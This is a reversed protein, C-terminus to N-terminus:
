EFVRISRDFDDVKCQDKLENMKNSDLENDEIKNRFLFHSKRFFVGNNESDASLEKFKNYSTLCWSKSRDLSKLALNYGCVAPPWEWLAGVVSSTINDAFDEAVVTVKYGENALLLATTLGSVGAGIILIREKSIQM